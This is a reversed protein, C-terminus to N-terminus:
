DTTNTRGDSKSKSQHLRGCRPCKCDPRNTRSQQDLGPVDELEALRKALVDDFALLESLLDDELHIEGLVDDTLEALFPALQEVTPNGHIMNLNIALRRATNDDLEAIVAPISTYGLEKAALFRHNGSIIEFCGLPTALPRLLIPAVFGDRGISVKLSELQRPTLHQPNRELLRCQAVSVHRLEPLKM